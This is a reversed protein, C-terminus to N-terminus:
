CPTDNNGGADHLLMLWNAEGNPLLALLRDYIESLATYVANPSRPFENILSSIGYATFKSQWYDDHSNITAKSLQETAIDLNGLLVHALALFLSMYPNAPYARQATEVWAVFKEPRGDPRLNKNHVYNVILNCAFWIEKVQEATPVCDAPLSFVTPQGPTEFANEIMGKGSSRTPIFNALKKGESKMQEEFYEGAENFASAGRIVQCVTFAAWDLDVLLAFHLSDMMQGFTEDPLGVIFNGGVFIEPASEMLKSVSLFKEHKAPKKVKRLMAPNGTEIGIKFGICGSDRMLRITEDDLSTAILGNNASWTINWGRDIIGRLINQVETKYFLLDDDLWEFHRVGKKDILYAMEALVDDTSRARVGRGMFDRVACFTCAARCGRALQIAAFPSTEVHKMRSFPNLSGYRFYTEIPVLDYSATMDGKFSVADPPGDTQRIDGDAMFYIGSVLTTGLNEETLHDLIANFKNEGEGIAVFHCLDNGILQSWEYTAIVGGGIVISEGRSRILRLATLMPNIGVDFICSVGVIQPKFEELTRELILPWDSPSFNPDEHVDKLIEYNLDLIRFEIDRDKAAEYLCQPGTPPFIYYGRKLAIERNFVDLLIQPTQLLLVRRVPGYSKRLTQCYDIFEANSM